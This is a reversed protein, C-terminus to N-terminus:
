FRQSLMTEAQDATPRSAVTPAPQMVFDVRRPKDPLILRGPRYREARAANSSQGALLLPEARSRSRMTYGPKAAQIIAEQIVIDNSDLRGSGDYTAFGPGFHLRYFGDIDTEVEGTQFYTGLGCNAFVTVGSLGQGDENTVRGFVVWPPPGYKEQRLDNLVVLGAVVACVLLGELVGEVIPKLIGSGWFLQDKM